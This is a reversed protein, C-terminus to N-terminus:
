ILDEQTAGGDNPRAAHGERESEHAPAYRKFQRFAILCCVPNSPRKEPRYRRKSYSPPLCRAACRDLSSNWTRQCPVSLRARHLSVLCRAAVWHVSLQSRHSFLSPNELHTKNAQTESDGRDGNEASSSTRIKKTM